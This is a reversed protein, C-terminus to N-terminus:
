RRDLFGLLQRTGPTFDDDVTMPFMVDQSTYREVHVRLFSRPARQVSHTRRQPRQIRVTTRARASPPITTPLLGIKCGPTSQPPFPRENLSVSRLVGLGSPACVDLVSVRPGPRLHGAQPYRHRREAETLSPECRRHRQRTAPRERVDCGRRDHVHEDQAPPFAISAAVLWGPGDTGWSCSRGSRSCTAIRSQPTRHEDRDSWSPCCLLM